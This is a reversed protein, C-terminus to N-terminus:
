DLLPTQSLATLEELPDLHLGAVSRYKNCKPQFVIRILAIFKVYM